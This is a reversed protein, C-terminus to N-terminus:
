KLIIPNYFKIIKNILDESKCETDEAIRRILEEGFDYNIVYELRHKWLPHTPGDKNNVYAMRVIKPQHPNKFDADAKKPNVM